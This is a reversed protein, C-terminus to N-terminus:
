TQQGCVDIGRRHFEAAVFAPGLPVPKGGTKPAQAFICHPRHLIM